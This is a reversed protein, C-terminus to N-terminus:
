QRSVKTALNYGQHLKTTVCSLQYATGNATINAIGIYALAAPITGTTCTSTALPTDNPVAIAKIIDTTPSESGSAVINFFTIDHLSIIMNKPVTANKM